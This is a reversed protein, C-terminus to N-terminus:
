RWRSGIALPSGVLGLYFGLDYTWSAEGSQYVRVTWPLVHPAFHNIIEVILTVPGIIGHWLGLFFLSLPGAAAAHSAESSGAVCAGLALCLLVAAAVGPRCVVQSRPGDLVPPDPRRSFNLNHGSM